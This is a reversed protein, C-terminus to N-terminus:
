SMIEYSLVYQLSGAQGASVRLADSEELYISTDKAIVVLSNGVPV